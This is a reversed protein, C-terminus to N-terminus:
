RAPSPAYSPPADGASTFPNAQLTYVLTGSKHLVSWPLWWNKVDRGDVAVKRIYLLDESGIARVHLIHDGLHLTVEPFEPTSLTVGGVAPIEPYMGLDAFVLWSSTAGLDDNGPLGGPEDSFLDHVAKHVVQQARWPFGAWNYIWPDGFSPENSLLFFPGGQWKGYQSFYSDLRQRVIDSDGIKAILGALNYPVMWTYQSSNGEVFGDGIGPSFSPIFEGNVNRPRIYRTEPDFLTMWNASRDLFRNATADDGLDHAFQSIAFDANAYELTISASGRHSSSESVYGKRLYEDLGPREPYLRTHTTADDAGRIMLKLANRTDFDRGGFAYISSLILDAPDGVMEGTEDNAMPWVPLGGGQEADDVLSQAIDSAISPFLMTVLQVQSRYIDWGSYNAYHHRGRINRVKGDFGLYDGNADDFVTPALLSHYLATYFTRRQQSSGGNIEIRSLADSWSRHGAQRVNDVSWGPIEKDMNAQANAESVYSLGVKLHVIKTTAPYVLCGGINWGKLTTQSSNVKLANFTCSSVPTEKTELAFYIRYRNRKSCFSGGATSGTIRNGEIHLSADIVGSRNLSRSLDLFLTHRKLSDPFTIQGLGSRLAAALQLTIGSNLKVSYYGPEAIENSHTYQEAYITPEQAPSVTLQGDFPMIPVDGFAPCGVGNLHTLSFGRTQTLYYRYFPESIPDPGWSLMGFPLTASPSALGNDNIVSKDTGVFVNVQSVPSEVSQGLLKAPGFVCLYFVLAVPLRTFSRSM